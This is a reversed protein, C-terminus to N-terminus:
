RSIREARERERRRLALILDVQELPLPEATVRAFTERLGAAFGERAGEIAAPTARRKSERM